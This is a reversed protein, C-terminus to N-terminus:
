KYLVEELFLGQAPATVIQLEKTGTELLRTIQEVSLKGYAVAVLAGVIKRVMRYLYGSGIMEVYVGDPPQSMVEVRFLHKTSCERPSVKGAFASFLHTGEFLKAAEQMRELQFNIGSIGWCYRWEFPTPRRLLLYYRYRKGCASFRAHFNPDTTQVDKVQLYPGLNANMAKLLTVAGHNWAADFHFIQGKAHVGADTRSSGHIRVLRKFIKRLRNELIDQVGQQHSQSQWGCFASGEYSCVCKWRCM